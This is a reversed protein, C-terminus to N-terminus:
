TTRWSAGIARYRLTLPEPRTGRMAGALSQEACIRYEADVINQYHRGVPEVSDYVAVPEIVASVGKVKGSADRIQRFDLNRNVLWFLRQPTSPLATM